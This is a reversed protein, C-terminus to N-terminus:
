GMASCVMICSLSLTMAKGVDAVLDDVKYVDLMVVM